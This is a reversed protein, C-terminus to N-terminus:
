WLIYDILAVRDRCRFEDPGTQTGIGMASTTYHCTANSTQFSQAFLSEGCRVPMNKENLQKGWLSVFYFLFVVVSLVITCM